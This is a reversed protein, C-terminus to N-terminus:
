WITAEYYDVTAVQKDQALRAQALRWGCARHPLGTSRDVQRVSTQGDSQRVIQVRAVRMLQPWEVCPMVVSVAQRRRGNGSGSGGGTDPQCVARRM